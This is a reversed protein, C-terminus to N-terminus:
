LRDYIKISRLQNKEKELEYWCHACLEEDKKGLYWGNWFQSPWDAIANKKNTEGHHWFEQKDKCKSCTVVSVWVKRQVLKRSM